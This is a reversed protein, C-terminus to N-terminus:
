LEMYAVRSDGLMSSPHTLALRNGNFFVMVTTEMRNEMIGM